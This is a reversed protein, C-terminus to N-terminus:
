KVKINMNFGNFTSSISVFDSMLSSHKTEVKLEFVVTKTSAQPIGNKKEPYWKSDLSQTTALAKNYIKKNKITDELETIDIIRGKEDITFMFIVMGSNLGTKNNNAELLSKFDFTEHLYQTLFFEGGIFGAEVNDLDANHLYILSDNDHDFRQAIFGTKDFYEWIGAMEDDKYIGTMATTPNAWMVQFSAGNASAAGSLELPKTEPYYYIWLSDKMGDKYQGKSKINNRNQYYTEWYGDKKGMSYNGFSEIFLGGYMPKDLKVYGGHMTKKDSRLVEYEEYYSDKDKKISLTEQAFNELSVGILLFTFLLSKM